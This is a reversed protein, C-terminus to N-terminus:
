YKLIFNEKAQGPRPSVIGMRFLDISVNIKTSKKIEEWAKTMEESWYIDDIIMFGNPSIKDIYFNFYDMTPQYLHNGDLYVLDVHEWNLVSQNLNNIFDGELFDIKGNSSLNKKALTLLEPSGELTRLNVEDHALLYESGIGLCTGLEVINQLQYYAVIKSLLQGYKRPITSTRCIEKVTRSHRGKKSGAGLDTIEIRSSDHLFKKRRAEIEPRKLSAAKKLVENYFQFVFPSHIGHANNAKLKYKLYAKVSM